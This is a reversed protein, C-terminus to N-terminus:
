SLILGFCQAALFSAGFYGHIHILERLAIGQQNIDYIGIDVAKCVRAVQRLRKISARM